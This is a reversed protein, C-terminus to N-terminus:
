LQIFAKSHFQSHSNSIYLKNQYIGRKLKLPDWYSKQSRPKAKNSLHTCSELNFTHVPDSIGFGLISRFNPDPDMIPHVWKILSGRNMYSCKLRVQRLRGGLICYLSLPRKCSDFWLAGRGLLLGSM